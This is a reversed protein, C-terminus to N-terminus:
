DLIDFLKDLENILQGISKYFGAQTLRKRFLENLEPDSSRQEYVKEFYQLQKESYFNAPIRVPYSITEPSSVLYYYHAFADKKNEMTAWFYQDELEHVQRFRVMDNLVMTLDKM